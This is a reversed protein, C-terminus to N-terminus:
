PNTARVQRAEGPQFSPAVGSFSGSFGLWASVRLTQEFAFRALRALCFCHALMQEVFSVASGQSASVKLVHESPTPTLAFSIRAAVTGVHWVVPCFRLFQSHFCRWLVVLCSSQRMFTNACTATSSLECKGSSRPENGNQGPSEVFHSVCTWELTSHVFQRSWMLWKRAGSQLKNSHCSCTSIFKWLKM